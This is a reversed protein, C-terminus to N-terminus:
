VALPWMVPNLLHGATDKIKILIMTKLYTPRDVSLRCLTGLTDISWFMFSDTNMQQSYTAQKKHRM